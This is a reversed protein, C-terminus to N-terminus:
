CPTFVLGFEDSSSSEVCAVGDVFTEFKDGLSMLVVRLALVGPMTLDFTGGANIRVWDGCLCLWFLPRCCLEVYVEWSGKMEAGIKDAVVWHEVSTDFSDGIAEDKVGCLARVDM